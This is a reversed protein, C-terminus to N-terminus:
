IQKDYLCDREHSKFEMEIYVNECEALLEDNTITFNVARFIIHLTRNVYDFPIQM